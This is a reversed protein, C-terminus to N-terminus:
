ALKPLIAVHSLSNVNNYLGQCLRQIKTLYNRPGDFEDFPIRLRWQYVNEHGALVQEGVAKLGSYFSCPPSEFTFNPRDTETFGQIM